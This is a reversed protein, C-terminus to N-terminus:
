FGAVALSSDCGNVTVTADATVASVLYGWIGFSGDRGYSGYSIAALARTGGTAGQTPKEAPLPM